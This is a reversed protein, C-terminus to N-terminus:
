ENKKKNNTTLFYVLLIALIAGLMGIIVDSVVNRPGEGGPEDEIPLFSSKEGWGFWQDGLFAREIVEYFGIIIFSLIPSRTLAGVLFGGILHGTTYKDIERNNM